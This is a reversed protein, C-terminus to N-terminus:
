KKKAVEEVVEQTREGLFELIQSAYQTAKRAQEINVNGIPFGSILQSIVELDQNNLKCEYQKQKQM